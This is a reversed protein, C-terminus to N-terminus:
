SVQISFGPFLTKRQSIYKTNFTLALYSRVSCSERLSSMSAILGKLYTWQDYLVKIESIM